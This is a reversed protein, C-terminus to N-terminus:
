EDVEGIIQVHRLGEIAETMTLTVTGGAGTDPADAATTPFGSGMFWDAGAGDPIPHPAYVVHVRLLRTTTSMDIPPVAVSVVYGGHDIGAVALEPDVKGSPGPAPVPTPAPVPSGFDFLGSLPGTVKPGLYYRSM